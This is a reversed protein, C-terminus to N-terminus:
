QFLTNLQQLQAQVLREATGPVYRTAGPTVEYGGQEFAAATPLYGVADNALEVALTHPAPSDARLALGLECFLEGPIAAVALDGIRLAMAEVADDKHQEAYLRLWTPAIHEIPLGDMGSQPASAGLAERAWAYQEDSLKIRECPLRRTATGLRAAPLPESTRVAEAAAAAVMYGIRETMHFGEARLPDTHDIHNVDGCCGLLFLTIFGDGHVRKMANATQGPWGASYLHNRYDLVAPHLAYNVLAGCLRGEREAAVVAVRPDVPGLTEAIDEPAPLEWNMRIGGSIDRLRRNFVLRDENAYGIRLAGPALTRDAEVVAEAARRMLQEVTADDAKPTEYIRTVAPGSHIHTACILTNEPAIGCHAAIHGRMMAVLERPLLCVDVSLLALKVGGHELVMAKAHLPDHTGRALYDDRLHGLLPLGPPPAYDVEAMGIRLGSM